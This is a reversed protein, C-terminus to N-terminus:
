FIPTGIRPSTGTTLTRLENTDQEKYFETYPDLENLMADIATEMLFGADLTDVYYLDLDRFLSNFIDLAQATSFNHNQSQASANLSFGSLTIYLYLLVRKM